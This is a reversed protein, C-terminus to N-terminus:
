RLAPLATATSCCEGRRGVVRLMAWCRMLWACGICHSRLPWMYHLWPESEDAQEKRRQLVASVVGWGTASQSRLRFGGSRLFGRNDLTRVNGVRVLSCSIRAAGCFTIYFFTPFAIVFMFPFARFLQLFIRQRATTTRAASTRASPRFKLLANKRRKNESKLRQNHHRSTTRATCPRDQNARLTVGPDTSLATPAANDEHM